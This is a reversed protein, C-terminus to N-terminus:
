QPIRVTWTRSSKVPVPKPSRPVGQKGGSSKDVVVQEKPPKLLKHKTKYALALKAAKKNAKAQEKTEKNAQRQAQKQAKEEAKRTKEELAYQRCTEAQL